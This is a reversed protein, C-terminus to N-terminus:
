FNNQLIQGSAAKEFAEKIKKDLPTIAERM